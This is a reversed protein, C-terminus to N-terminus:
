KGGVIVTLMREPHVRRRYADRVQEVTVAEVKAVFDDLYSLPLGYFGILALYEAIKQNSDIRLPFGGSLNKKAADLEEASPGTEVFEKIVRNVIALAKDIQSNKTQLGVTFPGLARMPLFYSYVSYALGKKERVEESLRSVLGGGGLTYNGVYLPFYDPDKRKIGPQGMFIHSQKSPFAIYERSASKRMPVPPIPPAAQGKPLGGVLREAIDKAQRQSIDGIIAIVANAAVYYQRHYDVLDKRGIAKLGRADGSPYQQYPHGAFLREYFRRQAIESPSQRELELRTLARVRERQLSKESFSPSALIKALLDVAPDLASTDSLSRLSLTAMDRQSDVSFQAGVDGFRTAIDDADLGGAGQKLMQNTLKAIGAQRGVDRASGADFVLQFQVMPLGRSEVFLVQAGKKTEWQEIPLGAQAVGAAALLCLVILSKIGQPM